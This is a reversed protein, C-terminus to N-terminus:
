ATHANSGWAAWKRLPQAVAMFTMGGVGTGAVNLLLDQLSSSRSPIWAQTLEISGSLAFGIAVAGGLASLRTSRAVDGFLAVLLFGLPIFGCLNLVIDM